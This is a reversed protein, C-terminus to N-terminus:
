NNDTTQETQPQAQPAFSEVDDQITNLSTQVAKQSNDISIAKSQIDTQLELQQKRFESQRNENQIMQNKLEKLTTDYTQLKNEVGNWLTSGVMFLVIVILAYIYIPQHM